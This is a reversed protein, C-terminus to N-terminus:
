GYFLVGKFFLFVFFLAAAIGSRRGKGRIGMEGEEKEVYHM